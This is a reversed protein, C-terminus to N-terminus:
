TLQRKGLATLWRQKLAFIAQPAAAGFCAMELERALAQLDPDQPLRGLWKQLTLPHPARSFACVAHLLEVATQALEINNLALRRAQRREWVARGRHLGFGTVLLLLVVAAVGLAQKRFPDTITLTTGKLEVQEMRMTRPDFYALSLDPLRATGAQTPVVPLEIRLAGM